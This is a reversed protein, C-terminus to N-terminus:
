MGGQLIRQSAGKGYKQDFQEAFQPNQKLAAIAPAPPQGGGMGAANATGVGPFGGGSSQAGQRPISVNQDEWKAMQPVEPFQFTPFTQSYYDREQHAQNAYATVQRRGMEYMARRVEPGLRGKGKIAQYFQQKLKEPLSQAIMQMQVDQDTVRGTPDLFKATGATFQTDTVANDDDISNGMAELVPMAKRVYETGPQNGLQNLASLQNTTTLGKDESFRSAIAKSYQEDDITGAAYADAAPDRGKNRLAENMLNRRRAQREEEERQKDVNGSGMAKMMAAKYENDARADRRQNAYQLGKGAAMGARDTSNALMGAGVDLMMQRTPSLSGFIDNGWPNAM